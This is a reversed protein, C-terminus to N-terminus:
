KQGRSNRAAQLVKQELSLCFRWDQEIPGYFMNNHMTRNETVIRTYASSIQNLRNERSTNNWGVSEALQDGTFLLIMGRSTLDVAASKDENSGLNSFVAAIIGYLAGCRTSAYAVEGADAAWQPRKSAWDSFPELQMTQAQAQAGLSLLFTFALSRFM